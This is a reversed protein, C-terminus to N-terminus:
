RNRLRALWQLCFIAANSTHFNTLTSSPSRSNRQSSKSLRRILCSNLFMCSQSWSSESQKLCQAVRSLEDVLYALLRYFSLIGVIPRSIPKHQFTPRRVFTAEQRLPIHFRPALLPTAISYADRAALSPCQVDETEPNPSGQRRGLSSGGFPAFPPV